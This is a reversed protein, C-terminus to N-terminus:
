IHSPSLSFFSFQKTKKEKEYLEILEEGQERTNIIKNTNM